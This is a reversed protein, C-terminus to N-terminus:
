LVKHTPPNTKKLLFEKAAEQKVLAEQKLEKDNKM